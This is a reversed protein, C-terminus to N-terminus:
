VSRRKGFYRNLYAGLLIIYMGFYLWLLFVVLLSLNGYLIGFNGDGIYISFGWSFVSWVFAALSAGPLQGRMRRKISPLFSYVCWLLVTIVAWVLVYRFPLLIALLVGSQPLYFTIVDLIANGFVLFGLSIGVALAIVITYVSALIRVVFYNRQETVNHVANLGRILALTGKGAAWIMTLTAISLFGASKETSELLLGLLAVMPGLSLFLFFACSAAYASINKNRVCRLFDRIILYANRM